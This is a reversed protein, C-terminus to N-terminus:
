QISTRKLRKLRTCYYSLRPKMKVVAFIDRDHRVRLAKVKKRKRLTAPLHVLNFGLSCYVAAFSRYQGKLLWVISVAVLVALRGPLATILTRGEFNKLISAFGNRYDLYHVRSRRLAGSTQGGAHYAIARPYYWCEYGALWIRNCFDIEEYFTWFDPDFLGIRDLVTGKVLMAAANGVFLPMCRNYRELSQDKRCGYNYFVTSTTWYSGCGDLLEPKDRSVIKPHAVGLNRIESFAPLMKEIFERELTVDNNILLLFEGSAVEAGLNNGGSFGLNRPSEILITKPYHERVFEVSGDTSGNDVLIVEFRPYTQVAVAGLCEELLEVGNYNVVIVSVLSTVRAGM